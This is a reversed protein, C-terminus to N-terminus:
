HYTAWRCRCEKGVRREESRKLLTEIAHEAVRDNFQGVLGQDSGFVIAGSVELERLDEFGNTPSTSEVARLCVGLGLEVTRYYDNLSHVSNEYQEISSAAISKMTRVVSQLDQANSIRHRFNSSAKSM